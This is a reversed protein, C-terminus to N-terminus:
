KDAGAEKIEKAISRGRAVLPHCIAGIGGDVFVKARIVLATSFGLTSGLGILEFTFTFAFEMLGIGGISIPLNMLLLIVPTAVLAAKVTMEPDFAKASLWVNLIALIYFVASNIFAWVLAYRDHRYDQVAVQFRGIKEMIGTLSPLHRRFYNQFFLFPRQDIIMWGILTVVAAFAALSTNILLHNFQNMNIVIAGLALVVLMMMGTFREVFVSAVAEAGKGTYRRLEHMRVVDGGMSTPLILNYFQGILYYAWIRWVSIKVNRSLLLMWWKVSSSFNLAFQILVSLLLYFLSASKLMDILSSRGEPSFLGAKYFVLALLGLTIVSRLLSLLTRRKM